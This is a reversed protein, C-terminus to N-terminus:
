SPISGVIETDGEVPPTGDTCTADAMLGTPVPSPGLLVERAMTLRRVKMFRQMTRLHETTFRDPHLERLRDLAAVATLAPQAELWALLQDRVADLGGTDSSSGGPYSQCVGPACSVPM